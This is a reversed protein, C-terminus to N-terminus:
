NNLDEISTIDMYAPVVLGIGAGELNVGLDIFDEKYDEYYVAHTGPLWAAVLADASGTAVATWMGAAELSVLEVDYGIDELVKGIMHTSAIESDWAVFTLTLKDGDVHAVGDTWQSVKDQNNAVWDAAADVPDAGENVAVMIEGMDAQDWYFNDLVEYASPHDADLGIRAITHISESAGFVGKPDELYKLDYKAFKWHPTWGTVVIAEEKEYAAALAATMAASSSTQLTYGELGYEEIAEETAAMIGAGADIGTITYSLQDGISGDKSTTDAGCGAVFLTLSLGAAVSLRKLYKNM